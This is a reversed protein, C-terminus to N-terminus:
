IFTKSTRWIEEMSRIPRRLVYVPRHNEYPMCLGCEITDVRRVDAYSKRHDEVRGGVLILIEGSVGDRGWMWYANHFAIARRPLGHRPGLLDIAGADGYNLAVIGVQAQDEPPLSQYVRAVTEVIADWGFMDAYHQPLTATALREGSSPTIGLRKSYAIFTDIPLVPLTMPAIAAGSVILLVVFLRRLWLRRTTARVFLISGGALMLPYIPAIYYPKGRQAVLIAFVVLYAWGFLRFRGAEATFFFALGLVLLVVNVPHIQLAQQGAFDLPSLAENKLLTANRAFELTPWGNAIQWWIHPAVVIGAIAAAAWIRWELLWRRAPTLLAGVGIGAVFFAMSHKTLLGLGILVGALPAPAVTDDALMRAVVLAVATWLLVDWANMSLIHFIFFFIPAIAVALSALAAASRDGGLMRTLRGTLLITLAGAAASLV